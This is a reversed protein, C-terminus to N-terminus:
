CGERHWIERRAKAHQILPRAAGVDGSKLYEKAEHKTRIHDACGMFRVGLLVTFYVLPLRQSRASELDLETLPAM